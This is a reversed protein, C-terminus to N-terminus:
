QSTGGRLVRVQRARNSVIYLDGNEGVAVDTTMPTYDRDGIEGAWALTGRDYIIVKGLVADALYIRGDAGIAVGQPRSFGDTCLGAGCTGAGSIQAVYNGEFDFIKVSAPSDGDLLGYDTVLVERREADVAVGIPNALRDAATGPGSITTLLDGSPSFVKVAKDRGDVVLIRNNEEDVAIDSPYGVQGRGFDMLRAGGRARYVEVTERKLNGVYIFRDWFAVGLPKGDIHLGRTHTLTVPDLQIVLNRRSDTLLVAEPAFTVRLPSLFDQVWMSPLLPNRPEPTGDGGGDGGGLGPGPGLGRDDTCAALAVCVALASSFWRAAPPRM